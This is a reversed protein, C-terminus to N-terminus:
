KTKDPKEEDKNDSDSPKDTKDTDDESPKDTDSDSPKDPKISDLIDSLYGNDVVSDLDAYDYLKGNISLKAKGDVIQVFDVRGGITTTNESGLSKGVEIIVNKGALSFAQTNSITTAITALNSMQELASFQALQSVMQTNDVPDLPDQYQLQTVLLQLFADKGLENKNTNKNQYTETKGTQLIGDVVDNTVMDSM